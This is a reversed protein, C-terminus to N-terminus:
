KKKKKYFCDDIEEVEFDSSKTSPIRPAPTVSAISQNVFASLVIGFQNIELYKNETIQCISWDIMM